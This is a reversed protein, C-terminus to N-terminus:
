IQIVYPCDVTNHKVVVMNAMCAHYNWRCKVNNIVTITKFENKFILSWSKKFIRFSNGNMTCTTKTLYVCDVCPTPQKSKSAIATLLIQAAFNESILVNFKVNRSVGLM